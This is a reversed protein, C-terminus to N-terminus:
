LFGRFFYHGLGVTFIWAGYLSHELSAMSISQTKLYTWTYIAGGVTALLIAVWNQYVIHLYGFCVISALALLVTQRFLPRYRQFFFGRFIIEQPYASVIPYLVLILLWLWPRHQPISWLNQAEFLWVACTSLLMFVVFRLGIIKIYHRLRHNDWYSRYNFSPYQRLIIICGITVVLLILLKPLHLVQVTLLAPLLVFLTICEAALYWRNTVM